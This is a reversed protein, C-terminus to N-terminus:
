RARDAAAGAPQYQYMFKWIVGAAVFSIAMPLFILAKVAGEYRVRDTLVAILLGLTVTVAHLAGAVALNNRLVILMNPDTFIYRYNAM